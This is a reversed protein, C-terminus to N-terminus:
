EQLAFHPQLRPPQLRRRRCRHAASPLSSSLIGHWSAAKYRIHQHSSFHIYNSSILSAKSM